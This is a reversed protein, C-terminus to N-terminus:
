SNVWLKSTTKREVLRPEIVIHEVATIKNKPKSRKKNEFQRTLLEIASKAIEEINQGVSTIPIIAQESQPSDDFGIIEYEETIKKHNLALINIFIGAMTDNSFFIGKKKNPYAKEIEEYFEFVKNYTDQYDYIFNKIIIKYDVNYKKCTQEFGNIRGYAPINKDIHNNVHFLIDCNNNILLEVAQVAGHFNNTNVSCIFEDEREISVVPINLQQLEYSPITHSLVILGEIKYALLESIYRKEEELDDNGLFVIFKYGYGRYTDLIANLVCTYYQFFLKPAIIGIFETKGNALIRAVKNEKYDLTALAEEVKKRTEESLTEPSNFYRSITTKSYNTYKAIDSFTVNKEM